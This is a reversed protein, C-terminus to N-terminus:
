DKKGAEKKTGAEKKARPKSHRAGSEAADTKAVGRLYTFIEAAMERSSTYHVRLFGETPYGERILAQASKHCIACDSAYLQAGSKGLELNEQALAAQAALAAAAALGIRVFRRM